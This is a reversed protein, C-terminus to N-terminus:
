GEFELLLVPDSEFVATFLGERRQDGGEKRKKKNVSMNMSLVIVCDHQRWM